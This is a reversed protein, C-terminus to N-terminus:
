RELNRILILCQSMLGYEYVNSQVADSLEDCRQEIEGNTDNGVENLFEKVEQWM